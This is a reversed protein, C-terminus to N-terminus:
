ASVEMLIITAPNTNVQTYFTGTGTGRNQITDYTLASTSSPSDLYMTSFTTLNNGGTNYAVDAFIQLNNANRRLIIGGGTGAVFAYVSHSVMVFIKSSTSQPTISASLGTSVYTTSATGVATTTSGQVVQLIRFAGRLANQQAATLVNGTVFTSPLSTPTAM